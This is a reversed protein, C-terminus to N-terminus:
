YLVKGTRLDVAKVINEPLNLFISSDKKIFQSIKVNENKYSVWAIPVKGAFQGAYTYKNAIIKNGRSDIFEWYDGIKVSCLGNSFEHVENFINETLKQGTSDILAWRYKMGQVLIGAFSYGESFTLIEPYQPIILLKGEKDMLGSIGDINAKAVGCKFYAPEMYDFGLIQKGSKDIFAIKNEKNSIAAIGDSFPYGVINDEMPIKMLGNTDIFGRRDESYIYALGETFYTGDILDAKIFVSGDKNIYGYRKDVFETPFNNIVLAKGNSFDKIEDYDTIIVIEGKSDMYCNKNKGDIKAVVSYLGENYGLVDLVKNNKFMENGEDDWFHWEGGQFFAVLPEASYSFSFCLLLLTFIKLM